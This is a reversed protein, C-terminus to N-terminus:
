ELAKAVQDAVEVRFAIVARRMAIYESKGTRWRRKGAFRYGVIWHPVFDGDAFYVDELAMRFAKSATTRPM